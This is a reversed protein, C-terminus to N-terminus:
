VVVVGVEAVRTFVLLPPPTTAVGPPSNGATEQARSCTEGPVPGVLKILIVHIAGPPQKQRDSRLSQWFNSSLTPNRLFVIVVSDKLM